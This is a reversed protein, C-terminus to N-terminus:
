KENNKTPESSRSLFSEIESLPIEEWWEYGGTSAQYVSELLRRAEKIEQERSALASSFWHHVNNVARDIAFRQFHIRDFEKGRKSKEINYTESFIEGILIKKIEDNVLPKGEGQTSPTTSHTM